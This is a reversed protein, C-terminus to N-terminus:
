VDFDVDSDGRSDSNPQASNTVAVASTRKRSPIYTPISPLKHAMSKVIGPIFAQERSVYNVVRTPLWGKPDAQCVYYLMCSNPQGDIAEVIYGSSHIVARVHKESDVAAKRDEDGPSPKTSKSSPGEKIESLRNALLEGAEVSKGVTIYTGDPLNADVAFWLFDRHWVMPPMKFQAYLVVHEDDFQKVLMIHKCMPDMLKLNPWHRICAEMASPAVPIIGYGKFFYFPCDDSKAQFM